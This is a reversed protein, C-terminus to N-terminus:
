FFLFSSANADEKDNELKAFIEKMEEQPIMPMGSYACRLTKSFKLLFNVDTEKKPIKVKAGFSVNPFMALNYNPLASYEANGNNFSKQVKNANNNKIFNYNQHITQNFNVKM